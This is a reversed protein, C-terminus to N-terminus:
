CRRNYYNSFHYALMHKQVYDGVVEHNSDFLFNPTIPCLLMCALKLLLFKHGKTNLQPINHHTQYTQIHWTASWPSECKPLCVKQKLHSIVVRQLINQSPSIVSDVEPVMRRRPPPPAVPLFKSFWTCSFISHIKNLVCLKQMKKLDVIADELHFNPFYIYHITRNLNHYKNNNLNLTAYIFYLELKQYKYTWCLDHTMLPM